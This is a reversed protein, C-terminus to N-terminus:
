GAPARPEDPHLVVRGGAPVEVIALPAAGDEDLVSRGEDDTLAHVPQGDRTLVAYGDRDVFYQGNAPSWGGGPVEIVRSGWPKRRRPDHGLPSPMLDPAQARAVRVPSVFREPQCPAPRPAPLMGGTQRMLEDYVDSVAAGPLWSAHREWRAMLALLLHEAGAERDELDSAILTARELAAHTAPPLQPDEGSPDFPDGWSEAYRRRANDLTLGAAALVARTSGPCRPHLLALMLHEVLVCGHNIRQAEATALAVIPHLGGGAMGPPPAASRGAADHAPNAAAWSEIQSRSWMRHADASPRAPPLGAVVALEVVRGRTVGLIRAVDAAHVADCLAGADMSDGDGAQGDTVALVRQTLARPTIGAGSLVAQAASDDPADLLALLVHESGVREDRLEHAKLGARQLVYGTGPCLSGGRTGSPEGDREIVADRVVQATLGFSGLVARAAGPAEPDLLALLLHEDGIRDRLLEDNVAFLLRWIATMAEDDRSKWPRQWAPGRDPHSAAWEIIQGRAWQRRGASEAAAAPFGASAALATARQRSVGLIRAVEVVDVTMSMAEMIAMLATTSVDESGALATHITALRDRLARQRQLDHEARELHRRVIAPLGGEDDDLVAAVERLALGLERLAVIRYLRQVDADGYLRHGASTRQSPVLLGLGDYHHLAKITLGTASALAGVRWCRDDGTM